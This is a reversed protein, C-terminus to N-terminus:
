PSIMLRAKCSMALVNPRLRWGDSPTEFHRAALGFVEKTDPSGSDMGAVPGEGTEVGAREAQSEKREGSDAASDKSKFVHRWLGKPAPRDGEGTLVAVTTCSMRDVRCQMLSLTEKFQGFAQLSL